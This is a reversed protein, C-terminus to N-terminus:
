EEPLKRVLKAPVGALVSYGPFSERVVSGAAVVCCPGLRVGHLIIAGAGIWTGREVRIPAKKRPYLRSLPRGGLDEHTIFRVGASVACDEELVIEDALDFYVGQGIYCGRGVSLRSFDGTADQDTEYNDLFIPSKFHVKEGISAGFHRLLGTIFGPHCRSLLRGAYGIGFFATGIRAQMLVFLLIAKRAFGM